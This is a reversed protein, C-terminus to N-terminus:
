IQHIYYKNVKVFSRYVHLDTCGAIKSMFNINSGPQCCQLMMQCNISSDGYCIQEIALKITNLYVTAALFKINAYSTPVLGLLIPPVLKGSLGDASYNM